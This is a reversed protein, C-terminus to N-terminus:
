KLLLQKIEKIVTTPLEAVDSLVIHKPYYKKVAQSIIGLGLVDIGSQEIEKVVKKLHDRLNGTYNDQAVPNGDSLVMLIKRTQRCASLRAAAIQLSEGDVNNRMDVDSQMAAIRSKVVPTLRENFAKIIPIHLAEVRSYCVYSNGKNDTNEKIKRGTTFGLIEHTIGIRELVSSLAYATQTAVVIKRMQSMSGSLDVLLTVAVDKNNTEHKRRFIQPDKFAVLKALSASHMRGSRYGPVWMSKSRAAIARELDKQLPGVMHDVASVMQGVYWTMDNKVELTKIVDHDKSYVVYDSEVAAKEAIESIEKSVISDFDMEALKELQKMLDPKTWGSGAQYEEHVEDHAEALDDEGSKTHGEIEDGSGEGDSGDNTENEPGDDKKEKKGGSSQDAGEEPKENQEDGKDQGSASGEENQNEDSDKGSEESDGQENSKEENEENQSKDKNKGKNDSNEGKEPSDSSEGSQDGQQDAGKEKKPSNKNQPKQEKPPQFHKVKEHMELAVRMCDNSSECKAIDNVTDGLADVVEQIQDWKDKMYDQFVSQGAWARIAPVMLVAIKEEPHEQLMKDTFTELFFEGVNRLNVGSGAFQKAMKREIFSDEVINYMPGADNHKTKVTKLTAFDSFLVHAVEHDLFGQIASLLKDSADDPIFPLNVVEPKGSRENYKVYANVGSQTVKIKKEALMGVIKKTAERFIQVKNM